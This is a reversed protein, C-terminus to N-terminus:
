IVAWSSLAFAAAQGDLSMMGYLESRGEFTINRARQHKLEKVSWGRIGSGHLDTEDGDGREELDCGRAFIGIGLEPARM